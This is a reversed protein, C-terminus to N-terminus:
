WVDGRRDRRDMFADGHSRGRAHPVGGFRASGIAGGIGGVDGAPLEVSRGGLAAALLSADLVPPAAVNFAGRVDGLAALRYARGVDHSDVAQTRLGRPFPLLRLWDRRLVRGPLLPGVFLRRIETAAEQKFTLAPRLRVTRIDPHRAEFDDLLREVAAKQRSYFSTPIGTTPWDEGINIDQPGAAYAGLSSMHVLQGIRAAGAAALVRRTGEINTRHTVREDRSPQILWALHIVVDAGAFLAALDDRAVDASRWRAREDRATPLRRAIAVVDEVPDADALVDLVSTGVNGSAGTVVVRM